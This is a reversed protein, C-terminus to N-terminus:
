IDNQEGINTTNATNEINAQQKKSAETQGGSLLKDSPHTLGNESMWKHEDAVQKLKEKWNNGLIEAYTLTNNELAMRLGTQHEVPSLDDIGKWQWSVYEMQSQNFYEIEGKGVLWQMYRFFLWDCVQELQKQFEVITPYAFLQNARWNGDEPNGTAFVKSMGLSSAVRNALWDVMVQINSNPHNMQLQQATIGEPLAEYIVSNEIAKNFSITQVDNAEQKAAQDIEEDSMGEFDTSEDFASPLQEETRNPSTLWCFIQSNRRSAMLESQVLDELQHITAIASAAQSVGRGERWNCSFHFWGNELSSVNPDKKLFYCANPDAEVKGRQSKSVVTGIHRGNASYVKGNSITANKGYRKQVEVLPVDVIESAEFFLIKGSDEVLKDDFLLVCDGGIIYERLIRKLFMNLNSQNYFDVNRTYEFFHRKLIDNTQENPINLVIKGGVTSVVNTTMQGLITNFLSSNRVLNRTLDLLKARKTSDLIEDETRNEITSPQVMYQSGDVIKYQGRNLFKKKKSASKRIDFGFIKM